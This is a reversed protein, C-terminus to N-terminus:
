WSRSNSAKRLVWVYGIFRTASAILSMTPRAPSLPGFRSREGCRVLITGGTGVGVIEVKRGVIGPDGLRATRGRNRRQLLNGVDEVRHGEPSINFHTITGQDGECDQGAAAEDSGGLVHRTLSVDQM